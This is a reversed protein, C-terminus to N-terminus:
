PKQAILLYSNQYTRNNRSHDTTFPDKDYSGVKRGDVIHEHKLIKFYKRAMKEILRPSYQIYRLNPYFLDMFRIAHPYSLFFVGGSNLHANVKEFFAPLDSRSIYILVGISYILDFSGDFRASIFDGQVFGAQPVQKKAMKLMEENIDLGTLQHGAEFDKLYLGPGCGIDLVAGTAPVNSRSTEQLLRHIKEIVENIEPRDSFGANEQLNKEKVPQFTVYPNYFAKFRNELRFLILFNNVLVNNVAKFLLGKFPRLITKFLKIM